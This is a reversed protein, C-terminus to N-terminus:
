GKIKTLTFLSGFSLLGRHVRFDSVVRDKLQYMKLLKDKQTKPCSWHCFILQADWHIRRNREQTRWFFFHQHNFSKKKLEKKPRQSNQHFKPWTEESKDPVLSTNTEKNNVSDAGEAQLLTTWVVPFLTTDQQQHSHCPQPQPTVSCFKHKKRLVYPIETTLLNFNGPSTLSM